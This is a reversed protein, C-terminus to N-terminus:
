SAHLRVPTVPIHSTCPPFFPLSSEPIKTTSLHQVRDGGLLDPETGEQLGVAEAHDPRLADGGAQGCRRHDAQRGGPGGPRPEARQHGLRLAGPGAHGHVGHKPVSQLPRPHVPIGARQRHGCVGWLRM